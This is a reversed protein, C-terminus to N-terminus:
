SAVVTNITFENKFSLVILLYQMYSVVQSIRNFWPWVWWVRKVM